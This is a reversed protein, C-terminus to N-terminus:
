RPQVAALLAEVRTGWQQLDFHQPDDPAQPFGSDLVANFAPVLWRGSRVSAALWVLALRDLQEDTFGPRPAIAHNKPEGQPDERRPQLLGVHVFLARDRSKVFRGEFRTGRRPQSFDLATASQGIRNVFVHAGDDRRWRDLDNGRWTEMNIDIPFPEGRFNPTSTDHLVLYRAGIREGLPGGLNGPDIGTAQLYREVTGAPIEVPQGVLSEFPAPLSEPIAGLRGWREIPRLLCRAEAAPEGAFSVTEEDFGCPAEQAAAPRASIVAITAITALLVAAAAPLTTRALRRAARLARSRIQRM